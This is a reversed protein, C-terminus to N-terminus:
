RCVVFLPRRLRAVAYCRQRVDIYGLRGGGERGTVVWIMGPVREEGQEKTPVSLM